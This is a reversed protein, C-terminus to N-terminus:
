NSWLIDFMSKKKKPANPHMRSGHIIKQRARASGIGPAENYVTSNGTRIGYKQHGAREKAKWAKMEATNESHYLHPHAELQNNFLMSPKVGKSHVQITPAGSGQASKPGRPPKTSVQGILKQSANRSWGYNTTTGKKKFPNVPSNKWDYNAM